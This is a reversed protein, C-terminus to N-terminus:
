QIIGCKGKCRRGGSADIDSRKKIKPRRTPLHSKELPVMGSARMQETRKKERGRIRFLLLIGAVLFVVVMLLYLMDLNREM